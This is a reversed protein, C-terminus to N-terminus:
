GELGHRKTVDNLPITREEGSHIRQLAREAAAFVTIFVVVWYALIYGSCARWIVVKFPIFFRLEGMLYFAIGLMAAITILIANAIM